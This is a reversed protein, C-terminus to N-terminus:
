RRSRLDEISYARAAIFDRRAIAVTMKQVPTGAPARHPRAFIHDVWHRSASAIAGSLETILFWVWSTLGRKWHEDAVQEFVNLVEPGFLERYERPYLRLFIAYLRKM